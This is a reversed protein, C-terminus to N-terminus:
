RVGVDCPMELGERAVGLRMELLLALPHLGRVEGRAAAVDILVVGHHLRHAVHLLHDGGAPANGGVFSERDDGGHEVGQRLPGEHEIDAADEPRQGAGRMQAVVRAYRAATTTSIDRSDFGRVFDRAERVDARLQAAERADARSELRERLAVVREGLRLGDTRPGGRAIDFRDISRANPAAAM